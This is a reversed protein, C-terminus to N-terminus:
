DAINALLERLQGMQEAAAAHSESALRSLVATLLDAGEVGDLVRNALVTEARIVRVLAPQNAEATDVVEICCNVQLSM